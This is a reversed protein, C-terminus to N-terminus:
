DFSVVRVSGGLSRTAYNFIGYRYGPFFNWVDNLVFSGLDRFASGDTSYSFTGSGGAYPNVDARLRLWVQKFTINDVRARITHGTGATWASTMGLTGFVLSYANGTREIGIYGSNDRFAALGVRDGDAMNTFDIRATGTGVPGRIRRTLTNRAFYLDNTVTVTRLTLGNNVTFGSTVPNHNWSWLPRLSTGSFSDLGLESPVGRRALPYPYSGWQNNVTVLSPFGDSNWRIPALVPSRGGPYLDSFGMYYWDGNSTDVLSGQHPAGARPVGALPIRDCLVRIEYPGWPSSSKIIYQADPPRTLFIYYNGGRKYMRSGELASISSPKTFVLRTEIQTKVDNSLRAVRIEGNGYAVYVSGDDDFLFGADYYCTAISAHQTWPGSPSSAVYVYTRAFGVCALFYWKQDQPRYKLTSAWIGKVYATQGNALDYSSGWDLTPVSNAITEWNVLDYSRLLPAGPSLHFSSASMYFTSGVRHVENDPLDEWIIPNTFTQALA